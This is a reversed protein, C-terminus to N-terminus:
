KNNESQKEEPLEVDDPSIKRYIGRTIIQSDSVLKCIQKSKNAMFYTYRKIKSLTSILWILAILKIVAVIGIVISIVVISTTSLGINM